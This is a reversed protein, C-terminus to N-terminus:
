YTAREASFPCRSHPLAFGEVAFDFATENSQCVESRESRNKEPCGRRPLRQKSVGSVDPKQYECGIQQTGSFSRPGQYNAVKWVRIAGGNRRGIFRNLWGSRRLVAGM